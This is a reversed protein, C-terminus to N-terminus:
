ITDIYSDNQPFHQGRQATNEYMSRAALNAAVM